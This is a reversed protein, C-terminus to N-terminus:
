SAAARTMVVTSAVRSTSTLWVPMTPRYVLLLAMRTDLWCVIPRASLWICAWSVARWFAWPSSADPLRTVLGDSSGPTAPLM